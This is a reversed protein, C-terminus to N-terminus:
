EAGEMSSNKIRMGECGYALISQGISDPIVDKMEVYSRNFSKGPIMKRNKYSTSAKLGIKNEQCDLNYLMLSNDGVSLGDKTLDNFIEDKIWAKVLTKGFEKTETISQINIYYKSEDTSGMYFWDDNAQSTVSCLFISMAFIFKKM